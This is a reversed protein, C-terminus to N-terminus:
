TSLEEMVSDCIKNMRASLEPEWGEWKPGKKFADIVRKYHEDPLPELKPIPQDKPLPNYWDTDETKYRHETKAKELTEPDLYLDIATTAMIKVATLISQHAINTLCWSSTSWNPWGWTLYNTTVMTTPCKWTLTTTDSSGMSWIEMLHTGPPPYIGSFGFPTDATPSLEVGTEKQVLRGYELDRETFKPSGIVEINKHALSALTLNGIGEWTGTVVENKIEVGLAMAAANACNFLREQIMEQNKRSRARSIYTVQAVEPVSSIAYNVYDKSIISAITPYDTAPVISDKILNVAHEMLELAQLANRGGWPMANYAATGYFTHKTYNNCRIKAANFAEATTEASPHWAVCADLNEFLGANEMANKGISIKEAPTGFIKFTGRINNKEMVFKIALAAGVAGAGLGHHMDYTGQAIDSLVPCKYPVPMQSTDELADYEAYTSIVPSGGGYTAVFATDLGAVGVEVDFGANELIWAMHRVSRHERFLPEAYLWLRDSIETIEASNEDIWQIVEKNERTFPNM